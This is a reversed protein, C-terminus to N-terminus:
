MCLPKVLRGKKFSPSYIFEQSPPSQFGALSSIPIDSNKLVATHPCKNHNPWFVAARSRVQRGGGGLICKQTVPSSKLSSVTGCVLDQAHAVPSRPIPLSPPCSAYPHQSVLTTDANPPVEDCIYMLPCFINITINIRSFFWAHYHYLLKKCPCYIINIIFLGQLWLFEEKAM